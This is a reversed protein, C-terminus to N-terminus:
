RSFSEAGSAKNDFREIDFYQGAMVCIASAGRSAATVANIRAPRQVVAVSSKRAAVAEVGDSLRASAAASASTVTSWSKLWCVSL